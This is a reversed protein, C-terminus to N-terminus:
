RECGRSRPDLSSACARLRRTSNTISQSSRWVCAFWDASIPPARHLREGDCRERERAAAREDVIRALATKSQVTTVTHRSGVTGICTWGAAAVVAARVLRGTITT